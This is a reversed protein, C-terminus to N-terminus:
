RPDIVFLLDGQRVEAGPKFLVKDLYGSVRARVDVMEVAATHGEFYAFEPRAEEAPLVFTVVPPATPAVRAAPGGCGATLLSALAVLAPPLRSPRMLGVGATNRM